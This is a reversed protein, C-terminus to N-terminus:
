EQTVIAFVIVTEKLVVFPMYRRGGVLKAEVCKESNNTSESGREVHVKAAMMKAARERERVKSSVTNRRKDPCSYDKHWTCMFLSSVTCTHM